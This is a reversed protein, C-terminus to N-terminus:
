YLHIENDSVILPVNIVTINYDNPDGVSKDPDFVYYIDRHFTILTEDSNWTM